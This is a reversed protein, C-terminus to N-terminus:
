PSLPAVYPGDQNITIRNPRAVLDRGHGSADVLQSASGLPQRCDYYVASGPALGDATPLPLPNLAHNPNGNALDLKSLAWGKANPFGADTSSVSVGWGVTATMLVNKGVAVTGPFTKDGLAVGGQGLVEARYATRAGEEGNVASVWVFQNLPLPKTSFDLDATEGDLAKQLHLHGNPELVIRYYGPAGMNMDLLTTPSPPYAPVKVFFGQQSGADGYIGERVFPVGNVTGGGSVSESGYGTPTPTLKVDPPARLGGDTAVWDEELHALNPSGWGTVEDWGKGVSFGNGKEEGPAYATIDHFDRPGTVPNTALAYLGPGMFTDLKRGRAQLYSQLDAAMGAWLPTALSTGGTSEIHQTGGDTYVVYAGPSTDADAAVDPVARARRDCRNPDPHIGTQWQPRVIGLDPRYACGGGSSLAYGTSASTAGWAFEGKGPIFSTGGVAVVHPSMAPFAAEMPPTSHLAGPSCGSDEGSDGSDVFFTKGKQEALALAEAQHNYANPLKGGPLTAGPCSPNLVHWSNSVIRAESNAAKGIALSVYASDSGGDKAIPLLWVVLHSGPAMAHAYEVDMALELKTLQDAGRHDEINGIFRWEVTDPGHAGTKLRHNRTNTNSAFVALDAPSLPMGGLIIGINVDRAGGHVAYARRFDNPGLMGRTKPVCNSNNKNCPTYADNQGTRIGDPHTTVRSGPGDVDFSFQVQGANTVQDVVDCSYLRDGRTGPLVVAPHLADGRSVDCPKRNPKLLKHWPRNPWKVFFTVKDPAPHPDDSPDLVALQFEGGKTLHFGDGPTNPFWRLCNRGAWYHEEVRTSTLAQDYLAVEAISGTFFDAPSGNSAIAAIHPEYAIPTARLSGALNGDVYLRARSGDYTAVVHHFLGDNLPHVSVLSSSGYHRPSRADPTAISFSVKGTSTMRLGYSSLRDSILYGSTAKTSVWLEISLSRPLLPVPGNFSIYGGGGNGNFVMSTDLDCSPGHTAYAVGGNSVTGDHYHGSRDHVM